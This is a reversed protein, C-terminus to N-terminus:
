CFIFPAVVKIHIVNLEIQIIIIGIIASLIDSIPESFFIREAGNLAPILFILILYTAKRFLSLPLAIKVQGLATMSDVNVYQFSLAVIMSTYIKMYKSSLRIMEEDSTFLSAFFPSLLATVILMFSTFIIAVLQEKRMIEKVRDIKGAGYNYSLMGQSGGTIGSLPSSITLFYSQVITAATILKDASEGGYHKLSTNLLIILLTDSAFILFPSLGYKVIALSAKKNYNNFSLRIPAKKDLLTLILITSSVCQSILTAIAAGKVGLNFIFIFIPDLIINSLAGSVMSLMARNSLGQSVCFSNLSVSLLAFFSGSTYIILYESAYDITSNSAGFLFLIDRNFIIFLPTLILSFFLTMYFATSLIELARKHEGHGERMSMIPAGGLGVLVAFSSIFTTIPSAIGVGALAYIGIQPIHGIYIRDVIAYLVNVLQALATPITLKLLLSWVKDCGLNRKSKEM